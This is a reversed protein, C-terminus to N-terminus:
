LNILGLQTITAKFISSIIYDCPENRDSVKSDIKEKNKEIKSGDNFLIIIGEGLSCTASCEELLLSYTTDAKNIDKFMVIDPYYYNIPTNFSTDGTFKDVKMEYCKSCKQATSIFSIIVLVVILLKKM